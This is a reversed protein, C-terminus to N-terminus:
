RRQPVQHGKGGNAAQKYRKNDGGGKMVSAFEGNANVLVIDNGKRYFACPSPQGRWEGFSVSDANDIIDCVIFHLKRRDEDSSPDLGWDASHKGFKKGVQKGPFAVKSSPLVRDEAYEIAAEKGAGERVLLMATNKQARTLESGGIDELAAITAKAKGVCSGAIEYFKPTADARALIDEAKRTRERLEDMSEASAIYDYFDDVGAFGSAATEKILRQASSVWGSSGRGTERMHDSPNVGAVADPLGMGDIVGRKLQDAEAKPLGAADIKEFAWWQDLLESPRVGEVIEAMPDDEFGPVIKCDCRRHYHSFEGATERTHYVAGRSALMLCFTCTEMGTPVRAFRVGDARDRGCNDIVTKNVSKLADNRALEGCSAAFGEVDGSTIKRAQYRATREVLDRNYTASTIAPPVGKGSGAAIGDYWSAALSAAAEDYVQVMGEMCRIAYTRCEAVTAAPHERCWSLVAERVSSEAEAAISEVARNYADFDDRSIM